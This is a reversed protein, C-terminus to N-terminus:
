DWIFNKKQWDTMLLCEFEDIGHYDWQWEQHRWQTFPHRLCFKLCFVLSPQRFGLKISSFRFSRNSSHASTRNVCVSRNSPSSSFSVFCSQLHCKNSTIFSEIRVNVSREAKPRAERTTKHQGRRRRRHRRSRHDCWADIHRLSPARFSTVLEFSTSWSWKNVNNSWTLWRWFQQKNFQDHKSKLLRRRIM